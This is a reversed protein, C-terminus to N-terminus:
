EERIKLVFLGLRTNFTTAVIRYIGDSPPRYSIRANNDGGTDDDQAVQKGEPDLLRLYADFQRSSLDITYTKNASMKVDYNKCPYKRLKDPPDGKVLMAEVELGAAGVTLIEGPKVKSLNTPRVTLVYQGSSGGPSSILFRFVGDDPANFSQKPLSSLVIKGDQDLIRVSTFFGRSEITISYAQDKKLEVEHAIEQELSTLTGKFVIEKSPAPKKEAPKDEKPKEDQALSGAVPWLLGAILLALRATQM